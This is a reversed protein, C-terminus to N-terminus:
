EPRPCGHEIGIMGPRSGSDHTVIAGIKGIESRADHATGFGGDEM